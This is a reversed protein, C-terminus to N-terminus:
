TPWQKVWTLDSLRRTAPKGFAQKTEPCDISKLRIKIQENDANLDNVKDSDTTGVVVKGELREVITKVFVATANPVRAPLAIPKLLQRQRFSQRRHGKM